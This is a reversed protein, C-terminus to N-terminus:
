STAEAVTARYLVRQRERAARHAEARDRRPEFRAGLPAPAPSEAAAAAAGRLSAQEDAYLTLPRELVDALLQAWAPRTVLAAGTGVIEEVGPLLDAIEAFRYAIGALAGRLLHEPTTSLSLGAITGRANGHWGTSREGGLFPLFTLDGTEDLDADTAGFVRALWVLVNGGDSLAGGEIARARDVRYLFLGPRADAGADRIVRYAGSTGITLCAREASTCGAGLNAAAGDGLAPRWAGVPGDVVPPLQELDLGLLELLEDDWHLAHVDFLGTGSAISSSTRLEGTLRLELYDPFSVIRAPRVGERALRRLKAPWFSAHLPAGTRRRVADADVEHALANADAAAEVDLWGSIPALPRDHRDLLLLSHWFASVAVADAPGAREVLSRTLDVLADAARPPAEYAVQALEGLPLAHEDFAQARVSSSGVDIALVRTM